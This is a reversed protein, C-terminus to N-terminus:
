PPFPMFFVVLLTLESASACMSATVAMSTMALM